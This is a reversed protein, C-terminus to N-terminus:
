LEPPSTPLSTTTMYYRVFNIRELSAAPVRGGFFLMHNQERIYGVERYWASAKVKLDGTPKIFGMALDIQWQL